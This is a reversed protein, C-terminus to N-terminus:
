PFLHAVEHARHWGSTDKGQHQAVMEIVGQIGELDKASIGIRRSGRLHVLTTHAAGQGMVSSLIVMENEIPGLISLDALFLGYVAYDVTWTFDPSTAYSKRIPEEEEGFVQGWWHKTRALAKEPTAFEYRDWDQYEDGPAEVKALSFYGASARPMGILTWAKYIVARLRKSVNQRSAHTSNSGLESIIFQYLEGIHEGGDATMLTAAVIIYWTEEPLSKPTADRAKKFLTEYSDKSSSM